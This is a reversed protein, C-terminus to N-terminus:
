KWICARMADNSTKFNHIDFRYYDGKNAIDGAFSSLGFGTNKEERPPIYNIMKVCTRYKYLYWGGALFIIVIIIAILYFLSLKKITITIM